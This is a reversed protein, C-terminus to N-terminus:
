DGGIFHHDDGWGDLVEDALVLGVADIRGNLRTALMAHEQEVVAEELQPLQARALLFLHQQSGLLRGVQGGLDGQGLAAFEIIVFVVILVLLILVLVLIVVILVLVVVVIVVIISTPASAAPLNTGTPCVSKHAQLTLSQIALCSHRAWRDRFVTAR